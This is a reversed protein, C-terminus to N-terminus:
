AIKKTQQNKFEELRTLVIQELYKSGLPSCEVFYKCSSKNRKDLVVKYEEASSLQTFVKETSWLLNNYKIVYWLM